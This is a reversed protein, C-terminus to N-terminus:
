HRCKRRSTVHVHKTLFMCTKTLSYAKNGQPLFYYSLFIFYSFLFIYLYSFLIICFYFLMFILIYFLVFIFHCLSELTLLGKLIHMLKSKFATNLVSKLITTHSLIFHYLSSFLVICIYSSFIIM